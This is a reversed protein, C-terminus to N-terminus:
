GGAGHSPLLIGLSKIRSALTTPKLGLLEAAGGGGAVKGGAQRLAARINEAELRRVEADTLVRGAAPVRPAPNSPPATQGAPLEVTLRAGDATIAAREIVHQLERVNGPWHYRQLQQV